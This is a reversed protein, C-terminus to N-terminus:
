FLAERSTSGVMRGFTHKAQSIELLWTQLSVKQLRHDYRLKLTENLSCRM